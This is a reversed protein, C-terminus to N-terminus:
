GYLLIGRNAITREICRINQSENFENNRFVILDSPIIDNDFLVNKIDVGIDIRKLDNNIIVCIDVDSDEDPKGYAYSGFLYIKQIKEKEVKEFILAPISPIIGSLPGKSVIPNLVQKENM